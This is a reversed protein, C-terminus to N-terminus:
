APKHRSNDPSASQPSHRVGDFHAAFAKAAVEAPFDITVLVDQDAHDYKYRIPEHHNASLWEGIATLKASFEAARLRVTVSRM